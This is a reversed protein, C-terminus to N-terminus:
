FEFALQKRSRASERHWVWGDFERRSVALLDASFCFVHKLFHYDEGVVGARKAYSRIHRDVAVSDIGVLCAMYDVTKPGVGKVKQIEHGFDDCVLSARLDVINQIGLSHVKRVLSEFRSIKINHKWNLFDASAGGIVIEILAPMESAAEFNELIRTVRPLVVSRYDLGAQLVSDALVAGLHECSHRGQGSDFSLGESSAFDAVRRAAVLIEATVTGTM